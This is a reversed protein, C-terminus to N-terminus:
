FSVLIMTIDKISTFIHSFIYLLMIFFTVGGGKKGNLEFRTARYSKVGEGFAFSKQSVM